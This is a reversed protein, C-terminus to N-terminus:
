NTDTKQPSTDVDTEASGTVRNQNWLQQSAVGNRGSTTFVLRIGYRDLLEARALRELQRNGSRRAAVLISVFGSEDPWPDSGFNGPDHSDDHMM